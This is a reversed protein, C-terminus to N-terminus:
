NTNATRSRAILDLAEDVTDVYHLQSGINPAAVAIVPRLAQFFSDASIAITMRQNPNRKRERHRIASIPHAPSRSQQRFDLLVDVPHSVVEIQEYIENSANIHEEVTWNGAYIERLITKDEDYWELTIPM